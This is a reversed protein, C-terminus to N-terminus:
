ECRFIDRRIGTESEIATQGTAERLVEPGLRKRQLNSRRATSTGRAALWPQAAIQEFPGLSREARGLIV